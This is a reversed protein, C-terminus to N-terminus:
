AYRTGTSKHEVLRVVGAAGEHWLPAAPQLFMLGIKINYMKQVKQPEGRCQSCGYLLTDHIM